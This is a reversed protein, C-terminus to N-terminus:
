GKGNEKAQGAGHRLVVIGSVDLSRAFKLADDILDHSTDIIKGDSGHITKDTGDFKQIVTPVIKVGRATRTIMRDDHYLNETVNTIIQLEEDPDSRHRKNWEGWLETLDM